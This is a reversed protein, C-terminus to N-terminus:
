ARSRRMPSGEGPPRGTEIPITVVLSTGHGVPSILDLTGGLAEVRDKLGALGSGRAPDAGGLGNDHISLRLTRDAVGLDVRVKTAHAYKAVNTLAESVTYYIAVEIPGTLRRDIGLDLEVPVRSRQALARLASRLGSRSLAVPHLGRTIEQLDALVNSLGQATRALQGRLQTQGPPVDALAARLRYQLSVLRQQAVDHLDREIRRRVEDSAAVIRTHSDLLKSRNEANAIATALLEMFDLMRAETDCPLPVTDYSLITAIGWLHGDVVLPAGIVQHMGHRRTWIGIKSTSADHSVRAPAGTGRVAAAATGPEIPWHGELPPMLDPVGPASWHGVSLAMDGPDFRCVLTYHAGRFRGLEAAVSSFIEIPSVSRAILTAVRRLSGQEEVARHLEDQSIKLASAMANFVHELAGMEDSSTEPVRVTLDGATIANAMQSSRQVPRLVARTLYGSFFFILFLAGAAGSTAILTALRADRDAREEFSSAIARQIRQFRDFQTRLLTLRREGEVISTATSTSRPTTRINAVLPASYERIYAESDQVIQHARKRQDPGSEAALRELSAGESPVEGRAEEWQRLSGDDNTIILGRVGAELDTVLRELRNASAVVAESHGMTRTSGRLDFIVSFLLAYASIALVAVLGSALM